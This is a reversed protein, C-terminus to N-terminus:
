ASCGSASSPKQVSSGRTTSTVGVPRSKRRWRAITNSSYRPLYFDSLGRKLWVTHVRADAREDDAGPDATERERVLEPFALVHEVCQHIRQDAADVGAVGLLERHARAERAQDLEDFAVSAQQARDRALAARRRCRELDGAAVSREGVRERRFEPRAQTARAGH